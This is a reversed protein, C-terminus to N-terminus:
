AYVINSIYIDGTFHYIKFVFHTIDFTGDATVTITHWEGDNVLNMTAALYKSDATLKENDNYWQAMTHVTGGGDASTDTNSDTYLYTVTVSTVNTVAHTFRWESWASNYSFKPDTSEYHASFHIADRTGFKYYDAHGSENNYTAYDPDTKWHDQQELRRVQKNTQLEKISANTINAEDTPTGANSYVINSIYIDGTFHYIKMVFHTIDLTGDSAVTITHWTGDAVLDM